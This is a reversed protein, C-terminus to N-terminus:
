GTTFSENIVQRTPKYDGPDNPWSQSSCNGFYSSWSSMTYIHTDFTHPLFVVMVWIHCPNKCWQYPSSEVFKAKICWIYLQCPVQFGIDSMVFYRASIFLRVVSDQLTLGQMIDAHMASDILNFFSSFYSLSPKSRRWKYVICPWMVM